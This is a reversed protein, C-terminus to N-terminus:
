DSMSDLADDIPFLHIDPVIFAHEASYATRIVSEATLGIEFYHHVEEYGSAVLRVEFNFVRKEKESVAPIPMVWFTFTGPTHPSITYPNEWSPDIPQAPVGDMLLEVSLGAMPEFTHGNLIRGMVTPLNFVPAEPLNGSENAHPRRSMLVQKMGELAIRNIDAQLQAKDLAEEVQNYALGRGSKIYKPPMRNLVYCITDLRCQSCSCTLWDTGDRKATDFLDNVHTYVLEEMLNHVNM